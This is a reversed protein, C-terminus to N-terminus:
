PEIEKWLKNGFDYYRSHDPEERELDFYLWRGRGDSYTALYLHPFVEPSTWLWGAGPQYHWGQTHPKARVADVYTLLAMGELAMEAQATAM